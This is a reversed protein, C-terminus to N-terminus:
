FKGHEEGIFTSHSIFPHLPPHNLGIKSSMGLHPFLSFLPLLCFIQGVLGRGPFPFFARKLPMALLVCWGVLWCVLNSMNANANLFTLRTPLPNREYLSSPFSSPPLLPLKGEGKPIGSPGIAIDHPAMRTCKFHTTASAQSPGSQKTDRVANQSNQAIKKNPCKTSHIVYSGDISERFDEFDSLFLALSFVGQHFPNFRSIISLQFTRHIQVNKQHKV